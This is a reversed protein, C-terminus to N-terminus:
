SASSTNKGHFIYETVVVENGWRALVRKPTSEINYGEDRLTFITAALRTNGLHYTSELSTIRPKETSFYELLREKHTM